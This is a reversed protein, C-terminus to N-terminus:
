VTQLSWRRDFGHLLRFSWGLRQLPRIHKNSDLCGSATGSTSFEACLTLSPIM